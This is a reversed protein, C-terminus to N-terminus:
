GEGGDEDLYGFQILIGTTKEQQLLRYVVAAGEACRFYPVQVDDNLKIHGHQLDNQLQSCYKEMDPMMEFCRDTQQKDFLGFQGYAFTVEGVLERTSERNSQKAEMGIPEGSGDFIAAISYEGPPMEIDLGSDFYMSTDCVRLVSGRLTLIVGIPEIRFDLM